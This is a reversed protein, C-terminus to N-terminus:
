TPSSWHEFSRPRNVLPSPPLQANFTTAGPLRLLASACSMSPHVPIVSCEVLHRGCMSSNRGDAFVSDSLLTRSEIIILDTFVLYYM